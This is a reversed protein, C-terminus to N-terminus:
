RTVTPVDERQGAAGGLDGHDQGLRVPPSADPAVEEVLDVGIVAVEGHQAGDCGRAPGRSHTGAPLCSGVDPQGPEGTATDGLDPRPM